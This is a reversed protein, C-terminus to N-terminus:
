IDAGARVLANPCTDFDVGVNHCAAAPRGDVPPVLDLWIKMKERVTWSARRIEPQCVSSRADLTEVGLGGLASHLSSSSAAARRARQADVEGDACELPAGRFAWRLCKRVCCSCIRRM